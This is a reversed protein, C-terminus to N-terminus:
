PQRDHVCGAETVKDVIILRPIGNDLVNLLPEIGIQISLVLDVAHINNIVTDMSNHVEDLGSTMRELGEVNLHHLLQV